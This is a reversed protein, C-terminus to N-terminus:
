RINEPIDIGHEILLSRLSAIDQTLAEIQPRYFDDREKEAKTRIEDSSTGCLNLIGESVMPSDGKKNMNAWSLQNIYNLYAPNNQHKAYDQSLREIQKVNRLDNTLCSLYLYDDASLEQTVIIQTTYMEGYVDYIGPASKEVTKQCEKTLHHLLKRPYHRSLFSLTLNARSYQNDAGTEDILLGAYGNTKYYADTTLRSHIGKIEFLNRERFQRALPSPIPDATPKHIILLDIRHAGNSLAYESHYELLHAYDRLDIKLADVTASHWNVHKRRAM